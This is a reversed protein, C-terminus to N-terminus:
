LMTDGYNVQIRPVILAMTFVFVCKIPILQGERLKQRGNSSLLWHLLLLLERRLIPPCNRLRRRRSLRFRLVLALLRTIRIRIHSFSRFQNFQRGLAWRDNGNTICGLALLAAGVDDALIGGRAKGEERSLLFALGRIQHPLLTVNLGEVVSMDEEEDEEDEDEEDEEEEEGEEEVKEEGEEEAKEEGEVEVKAGVGEELAPEGDEGTNMEKMLKTLEEDEGAAAKKTKKRRSRRTAPFDNIGELLEKISETTKENDVYTGGYYTGDAGPIAGGGPISFTPPFRRNQKTLDIVNQTSQNISTFGSSSPGGRYSSHFSPAGQPRPIVVPLQDDTATLDVANIPNTPKRPRWADKPGGLPLPQMFEDRRAIVVPVHRRVTVLFTLWPDSIWM